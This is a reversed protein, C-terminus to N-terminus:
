KKWPWAKIRESMNAILEEGTLGKNWEEEFNFPTKYAARLQYLQKIASADDTNKVWDLLENKMEENTAVM